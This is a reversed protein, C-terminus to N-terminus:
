PHSPPFGHIIRNSTRGPFRKTFNKGRVRRQYWQKLMVGVAKAVLTKLRLVEAVKVGNLYCKIEPIGSGKAVPTIFAVPASALSVLIVGISTFFVYPLWLCKDCQEYLTATYSFKASM